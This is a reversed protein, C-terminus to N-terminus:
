IGPLVTALVLLGYGVVLVWFSELDFPLGTVRIDILGLELLIAVAGIILAFLWTVLKPSKM